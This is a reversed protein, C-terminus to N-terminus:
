GKGSFSQCKWVVLFIFPNNYSSEFYNNILFSQLITSKWYGGNGQNKMPMNFVIDQQHVERSNSSSQVVGCDYYIYTSNEARGKNIQCLTHNLEFQPGTVLCM